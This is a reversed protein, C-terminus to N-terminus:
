KFTTVSRSIQDEGKQMVSWNSDKMLELLEGVGDLGQIIEAAEANGKAFVTTWAAAHHLYGALTQGPFRGYSILRGEAAPLVISGTKATASDVIQKSLHVSTSFVFLGNVQLYHPRLDGELKLSVNAGGAKALDDIFGGDFVWTPRGLGLDAQQVAAVPAPAGEKEEIGASSRIGKVLAAYLESMLKDVKREDKSRGVLAFEMMPLDKGTFAHKEGGAEINLDFKTVTGRTGIIWAVGPDFLELSNGLLLSHFDRFNKSYAEYIKAAEPSHSENLNLREIQNELQTLTGAALAALSGETSVEFAEADAPIAKIIPSSALSPAEVFGQERMEVHMSSDAAEVWLRSQGTGSTSAMQDAFANIRSLINEEDIEEAKRGAPTEQLAEWLKSWEAAMTQLRTMDWRAWLVDAVDWRFLPGLDAVKLPAGKPAPGLTFVMMDGSTELSSQLSWARVIKSIEKAAASDAATVAGISELMSRVAGDEVFDGLTAILSVSNETTKLQMMEPLGADRLGLGAMGVLAAADEAQRMRACIRLGPMKMLKVQALVKAEISKLEAARAPDELATAGRGVSGLLVLRVLNDTFDISADDIGIAIEKPIWRENQKLFDSAIAPDFKFGPEHVAILQAIKGELLVKRLAPSNLLKQAHPLPDSLAFLQKHDATFFRLFQPDDARASIALLSILYLVVFGSIARSARM